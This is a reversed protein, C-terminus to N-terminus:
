IQDHYPIFSWGYKADHLIKFVQEFSTKLNQLIVDGDAYTKKNVALIVNLTGSQDQNVCVAPIHDWGDKSKALFALVETM